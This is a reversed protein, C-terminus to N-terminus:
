SNTAKHTTGSRKLHHTGSMHCELTLRASQLRFTRRPSSWSSLSPVSLHHVRLCLFHDPKSLLQNVDKWGQIELEMSQVHTQTHFSLVFGLIHGARSPLLHRLPPAATGGQRLDQLWPSVTLLALPPVGGRPSWGPLVSPLPAGGDFSEGNLIRCVWTQQCPQSATTYARDTGM